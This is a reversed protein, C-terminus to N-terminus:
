VPEPVPASQPAEAPAAKPETKPRRRRPPAAHLAPYRELAEPDNRFVFAAAARLENAAQRTYAAARDRLDRASAVPSTQANTGLAQLLKLGLKRAAAVEEDTVDCRGSAADWYTSFLAGLAVLDDATDKHGGGSRIESVVPGLNPDDGWVYEAARLLKKRLPTAEALLPPLLSEPDIAQRALTDAEWLALARVMLDDCRAADFAQPKFAGVIRARDELYARHLHLANAVVVPAGARLTSVEDANMAELHPRVKALAEPGGLVEESVTSNKGNKAM